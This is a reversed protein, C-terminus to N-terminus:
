ESQEWHALIEEKFDKLEDPLSTTRNGRALKLQDLKLNKARSFDAGSLNTGEIYARRLDARQGKARMLSAEQLNAGYLGCEAPREAFYIINAVLQSLSAFFGNENM